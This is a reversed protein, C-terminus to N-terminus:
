RPRSKISCKDRRRMFEQYHQETFLHEAPYHTDVWLEFGHCAARVCFFRDEGWLAKYINPIPSYDVGADFVERKMLTCAGTMGVQYLGPTRWEDLMGAAQDFMWANCWHNTWFIESVIDKDAELLTKLTEPHLVLDTDVSFLYDYGGVMVRRILANRLRPMKALNDHTWIHDNVAKDYRDGTNIVEYDGRIEPIVEDCDNVVYFRDVTVGEPIILADLADQYERFIKPEQKLPAAILVRIGSYNM